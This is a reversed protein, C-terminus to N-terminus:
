LCGAVDIQSSYILRVHDCYYACLLVLESVELRFFHSVYIM